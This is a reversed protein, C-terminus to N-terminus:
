VDKKQQPVAVFDIGTKAPVKRAANQPTVERGTKAVYIRYGLPRLIHEIDTFRAGNEHLQYVSAEFVLLPRFNALTQRAGSLVAFEHGDTDMKILDIKQLGENKVWDDLRWAPVGEAPMPTGGHMPHKHAPAKGDVRWSAYALLRPDPDNKDALFANVPRIHVALAPNLSLNRLLKAYAYHTPEFAYVTAGFRQAFRLSMSGANAGVDVVVPNPANLRLHPNNFVHQQFNGFLYLSLDIGEALDLAFRIGGRTAQVRRGVFPRVLAYLIGAGFIRIRTLPLRSALGAM